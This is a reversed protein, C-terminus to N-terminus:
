SSAGGAIRVGFTVARPQGYSIPGGAVNNEQV